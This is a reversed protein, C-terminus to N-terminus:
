RDFKKPKGQGPGPKPTVHLGRSTEVRLGPTGLLNMKGATRAELAPPQALGMGQFRLNVGRVVDEKSWGLLRKAASAYFGLTAVYAQRAARMLDASLTKSSPTKSTAKSPTKTSPTKTSPTKSSPTKTSPTKSSPAKSSPTMGAPMQLDKRVLTSPLHKLLREEGDNGLLLVAEGSKGGRGTRGSRHVYQEPSTLGIQVVLTVDPFDLGRAIVDSAFMVAGGARAFDAAAKNRQPQSLRSHMELVRGFGATTTSETTVKQNSSKSAEAFLAAMFGAMRATSLFVIIRHQGATAKVHAALVTSLAVTIDRPDVVHAVESIDRKNDVQAGGADVYRLEKDSKVGVFEAAISSVSPPVTATFLLTLRARPPPLAAFIRRLERVFGMDLMRDAEDLVVVRTDTGLTARLAPLNEIHDLLRGPTAVLVEGGPAARHTMDAREASSSKGGGIVLRVGLGKTGPLGGENSKEGLGLLRRAERFTQEALERSPSLILARVRITHGQSPGQSKKKIGSGQELLLRALTPLLFGLTKGSGTGAKVFLHDGAGGGPGVAMKVADPLYAAQARSLREYKFDEQLSRKLSDPLGVLDAFRADSRFTQRTKKISPPASGQTSSSSGGRKVITSPPAQKQVESSTAATAAKKELARKIVKKAARKAVKKAAYKAAFKIM